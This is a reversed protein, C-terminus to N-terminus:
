LRQVCRASDTTAPAASAVRRQRPRGRLVDNGPGGYLADNGPGGFILDNGGRGLPPRQRRRRDAQRPRQRRGAHGPRRRRADDGSDDVASAVASRTTARAPTSRSAPSWRRRASWSTRTAPPTKCVTGGVELPVVSDIVYSRGDPTLWIHIMNQTRAAPWSWRTPSPKPTRSRRPWRRWRDGAHDPDGEEDCIAGGGDSRAGVQFCCLRASTAASPSSNHADGAREFPFAEAVVPELRGAELDAMLPETLRDLSGEREWWKLMNLGFVGKNENMLALSKWWPITALPM